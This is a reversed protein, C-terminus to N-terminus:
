FPIIRAPPRPERDRAARAPDPLARSMPPQEALAVVTLLFDPEGPHTAEHPLIILRSGAPIQIPIVGSVEGTSRRWLGYVHDNDIM